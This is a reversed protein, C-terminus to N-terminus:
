SNHQSNRIGVSFNGYNNYVFGSVASSTDIIKSEISYNEATYDCFIYSSTQNGEIYCMSIEGYNNCVFGGTVISENTVGSNNTIKVNKIYCSSIKGNNVAVLGGLSAGTISINTLMRCNTIFGNNVACITGFYSNEMSLNSTILNVALNNESGIECNTIIGNNTACIIGMIASSENYNEIKLTTQNNFVIRVNKIM